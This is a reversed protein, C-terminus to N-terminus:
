HTRQVPPPLLPIERWKEIIEEPAASSSDQSGAAPIRLSPQGPPHPAAPLRWPARLLETGEIASAPGRCCYPVPTRAAREGRGEGVVGPALRKSGAAPGLASRRAPSAGRTGAQPAAAAIAGSRPRLGKGSTFGSGPSSGSNVMGCVCSAKRVRSYGKRAPGPRAPPNGPRPPGRGSCSDARPAAPPAQVGPGCARNQPGPPAGPREGWEPAARRWGTGGWPRRSQGWAESAVM